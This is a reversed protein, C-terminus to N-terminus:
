WFTLFCSRVNQDKCEVLLFKLLKM